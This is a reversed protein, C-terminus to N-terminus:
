LLANRHVHGGVLSKGASLERFSAVPFCISAGSRSLKWPSVSVKGMSVNGAV